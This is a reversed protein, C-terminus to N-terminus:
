CRLSFIFGFPLFCPLDSTNVRSLFCFPRRPVDRRSKNGAVKQKAGLETPM